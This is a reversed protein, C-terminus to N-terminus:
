VNYFDRYWRVFNAIGDKVSFKKSIRNESDIYIEGDTLVGDVDLVLCKVKSFKSRLFIRNYFYKM